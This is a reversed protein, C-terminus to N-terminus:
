MASRVIRNRVLHLRAQSKSNQDDADIARGRVMSAASDDSRALGAAGLLSAFVLACFPSSLLHLPLDRLIHIDFAVAPVIGARPEM